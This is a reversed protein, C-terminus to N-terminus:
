GHKLKFFLITGALMLTIGNAAIIPIEGKLFGYTLWLALGTILVLFMKLSIDKTSRTRWVRVVQPVYASTTCIAAAYGTYDMLSMPFGMTDLRRWRQLSLSTGAGNRGAGDM